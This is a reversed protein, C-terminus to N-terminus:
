RYGGLITGSRLQRSKGSSSKWTMVVRLEKANDPLDLITLQGQGDKLLQAPSYMSAEDLPIHTFSFNNASIQGDILNLQSLTSYNVDRPRLLRVQEIFRNCLQTAIAEERSVRQARDTVSTYSTFAAAGLSVVFIAM